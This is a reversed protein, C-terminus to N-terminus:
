VHARGIKYGLSEMYMIPIDQYHAAESYHGLAIFLDKSKLNAYERVARVFIKNWTENRQSVQIEVAPLEYVSPTMEIIQIDKAQMWPIARTRYRLHTIYITDNETGTHSGSLRFRREMDVITPRTKNQYI